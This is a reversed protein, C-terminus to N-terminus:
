SHMRKTLVAVYTPTDAADIYREVQWVTGDLINEMESKSVFLYDFWDEREVFEVNDQGNHRDSILHGYADQTDTLVKGKRSM